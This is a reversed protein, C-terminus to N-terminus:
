SALIQDLDRLTEEPDAGVLLGRFGLKTAVDINGAYDDLFLSREPAPNRLRELAIQFIDPNPKRVGVESSDIVEDFLEDVPLLSRWHERFERVNNTILATPYGEARLERVRSVLLDQTKGGTGTRALFALPEFDFGAATAIEIIAERAEALTIEARELRHWPHDSDIDYSGFMIQSVQGPAAGLEEGAAEVTAFPSATFVGGFDFFIADISRTM